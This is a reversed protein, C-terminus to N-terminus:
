KKLLTSYVTHAQAPRIKKQAGAANTILLNTNRPLFANWVSNETEKPSGPTM